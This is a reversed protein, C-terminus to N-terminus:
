ASACSCSFPMRTRPEVYSARTRHLQPPGLACLPVVLREVMDLAFVYERELITPLRPSSPTSRGTFQLERDGAAFTASRKLAFHDAASEVATSSGIATAPRLTGVPSTHSRMLRARPSSGEPTKLKASASGIRQLPKLPPLSAGAADNRASFQPDSFSGSRRTTLQRQSSPSEEESYGDDGGDDVEIAGLSSARLLKREM